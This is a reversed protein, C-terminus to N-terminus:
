ISPTTLPLNQSEGEYWNESATNAIISAELSDNRWAYAIGPPITLLQYRDNDNLIISQSEGCTPSDKRKDHLVFTVAGRIVTLNSISKSHLKWGKTVGPNVVSFYVEGFTSFVPSANSIM